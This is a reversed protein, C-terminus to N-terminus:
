KPIEEAFHLVKPRAPIFPGTPRFRLRRPCDPLRFASGQRLCRLFVLRRRRSNAVAGPVRLLCRKSRASGTEFSTANTTIIRRGGAPLQFDDSGKVPFHRGESFPRWCDLPSFKGSLVRTHFLDLISKGGFWVMARVLPDEQTAKAKLVAEKSAADPNPSLICVITSAPDELKKGNKELIQDVVACPPMIFLQAKSTAAATAGDASGPMVHVLGARKKKTFYNIYEKYAEMKVADPKLQIIACAPRKAVQPSSFMYM